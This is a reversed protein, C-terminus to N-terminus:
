HGVIGLATFPKRHEGFKDVLTASAENLGIVDVSKGEGRMRLVLKDLIGTASIDWFHADALDIIVRQVGEEHFLVSEEIRDISAFFIQGGITYRRTAGGDELGTEVTVLNRVKYAFFMGSMLVGVLVGKSLDNTWVVVVVTALMVATSPLPHHGIELFSKWRFTSISVFIMVGVLAPMPVRAVWPGLVVMLVLLMAGAVFTSARRRGGSAINIVSQGIM